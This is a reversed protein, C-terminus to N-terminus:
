RALNSAGSSRNGRIYGFAATSTALRLKRPIQVDGHARRTFQFILEQQSTIKLKQACIFM